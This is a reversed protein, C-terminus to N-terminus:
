GALEGQTERFACRGQDTFVGELFLNVAFRFFEDVGRHPTKPASRAWVEVMNLFFEALTETELDSRVHGERKGQLTIQEILKQNERRILPLYRDFVERPVGAEEVTGPFVVKYQALAYSLHRHLKQPFPLGDRLDASRMEEAIRTLREEIASNVLSQKSPFHNYITKKTLGAEAAIEDMRLSGVPRTRLLRFLADVIRDHSGM